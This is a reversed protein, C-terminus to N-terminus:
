PSPPNPLSRTKDSGRLQRPDPRQSFPYHRKWHRIAADVEPDPANKSALFVAHHYLLIEDGRNGTAMAAELLRRTEELSVNELRECAPIRLGADSQEVCFQMKFSQALLTASRGPYVENLMEPFEYHYYLSAEGPGSEIEMWDTVSESVSRTLWIEYVAFILTLGYIVVLFRYRRVPEPGTLLWTILSASPVALCLVLVQWFPWARLYTVAALLLGALSGWTRVMRFQAATM